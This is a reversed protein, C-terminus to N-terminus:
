QFHPQMAAWVAATKDRIGGFNSAWAAALGAVAVVLLGIPSLLAGLLAAIAPIAVLLPGAAALVAAFALAANRVPAPLRGFGEILDAARRILSSITDTMPLIADVLASEVNGKFYEMAGALGRMRADAVEQAAGAQNVQEKMNAFEDSGAAILINAARIADAGFLTTLAQNRQADTLGATARELQGVIDQFSRMSGDANYVQVGLDAMVAAAKDTPATLRMLMTKLSTGADSGKL